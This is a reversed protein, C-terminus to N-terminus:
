VAVVLEKLGRFFPMARWQPKAGPDALRANPFRAFFSLIAVQAEMRALPAGICVHLGGGFAVHPADRRAIDFRHPDPFAAPDRNAGRLSTFLSQSQKVPCGGVAMDRSAIRGTIDVPSEYRLVEEVANNILSSDAKLKALEGPHTLFLFIANGILDTTTLNGGILLGQLNNSIEGDSLGAGEAQLQMMDSTLDDKPAARRQRMLDGMYASLANVSAVVRKTEDESRFPNLSLIAGESWDRFESLRAEDVGLIRAIVDIPVRLAFDGMADFTARGAVRDLYEDVVMQVLPKCKAVRKYLAKAFPARIRMHDPEDMLLIGSRAEDEPVTIGEVRNEILARQITAEPEAREPSRWLTTDSLLGRVDAHRTLIFTGAQTDRFVPCESRLRDLLVHPDANFEPNMPTLQFVGPLPTDTM